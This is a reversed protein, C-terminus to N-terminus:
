QGKCTSTSEEQIFIVNLGHDSLLFSSCVLIFWEEFSGPIAKILTDNEQM